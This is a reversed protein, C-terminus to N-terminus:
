CVVPSFSSSSHLISTSIGFETSPLPGISRSGEAICFWKGL